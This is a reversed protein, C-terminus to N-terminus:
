KEMMKKLKKLVMNKRYHITNQSVSFIKAVECETKEQYFLEKVLLKEEDSLNGLVNKLKELMITNVVIDEVSTETVSFQWHQELLQEYSQERGPLSSEEQTDPNVVRRRRKLKEMFYHEKDKGRYYERYIEETVEVKKGNIHLYFRKESM